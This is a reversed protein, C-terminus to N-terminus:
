KGGKEAVLAKRVEAMEKLEADDVKPFKLGLNEIADIVAAAVVLRSFWKKDAPVVFWPAEKTSTARIAEEYAEMYKPWLARETIDGMSFKWRKDPDDLRDLLRQRQEDRSVNLFFKLVLTGSRALHQEFGRIDEFRQEWVNKGVLAPPL